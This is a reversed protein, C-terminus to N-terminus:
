VGKALSEWALGDAKEVEEVELIILSLGRIGLRGIGPNLGGLRPHVLIPTEMTFFAGTGRSGTNFRGVFLVLVLALIRLVQALDLAVFTLFNPM